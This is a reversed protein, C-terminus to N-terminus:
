IRERIRDRGPIGDLYSRVYRTQGEIWARTRPSDQDELWRYPDTIAVGHLIDTVPEVASFPPREMLESM